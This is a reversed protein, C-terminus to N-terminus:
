DARRSRDMCEVTAVAVAAIHIAETRINEIGGSSGFSPFKTEIIAKAFEGVEEMLVGLWWIPDHNQEGWKEIQRKREGLVEVLIQSTYTM